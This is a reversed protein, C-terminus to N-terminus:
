PRRVAEEILQRRAEIWDNASDGSLSLRFRREAIFYARLRIEEDSPEAVGASPQNKKSVAPKITADKRKKPPAKTGKPKSTAISSKSRSGVVSESGGAAPGSDTSDAQKELEIKIKRAM